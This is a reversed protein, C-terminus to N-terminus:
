RPVKKAIVASDPVLQMELDFHGTNNERERDNISLYVTDGKNVDIAATRKKWPLTFATDTILSRPGSRYSGNRREYLLAGHRSRYTSPDRDYVDNMGFGFFGTVTGEPGISGSFTGVHVRGTVDVKLTGKQLMVYMTDSPTADIDRALLRVKLQPEQKWYNGRNFFPSSILFFIALFLAICGCFIYMPKKVNAAYTRKGALRKNYAQLTSHYFELSAGAKRIFALQRVKTIWRSYRFPIIGFIYLCLRLSWHQIVEFGGFWLFSIIGTGIGIMGARIFADPEKNLMSIFCSYAFTMVLCSFFGFKLSIWLSERINKNKKQEENM